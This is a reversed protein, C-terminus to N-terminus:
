AAKRGLEEALRSIYFARSEAPLHAFSNAVRAVDKRGKEYAALDRNGYVDRGTAYGGDLDRFFVNVAVSLDSTPKATHLWLSPIFLADGPGVIAEHSHSNPIGGAADLASFVDLSSSSAGPGFSLNTVDSPPFLVMRKTGVIQFYVNAMVDYHLWMNAKGSIRLVSSFLKQRAFELEAPIAFDNALQPYDEALIAPKESPSENSLSRLYMSAGTKAEHIFDGFDKTVYQFNKANFDLADTSAQHVIVKRREGVSSALYEPTWLSVCAGMDLGEIVVPKGASIIDDLSLQAGLRVRLIPKPAAVLPRQIGPVPRHSALSPPLEVTTSHKWGPLQASQSVNLSLTYVHKTWFTGMSFCTAGGGLIVIKDEVKLVSSGVILPREPIQDPYPLCSSITCGESSVSVLVIDHGQLILGAQSVGGLVLLQDGCSLVSAGFRPLLTSSSGPTQCAAFTIIPEHRNNIAVEWSFTQQSITGDRLMGGSLIGRFHSPSGPAAGTCHLVAGYTPPPRQGQVLCQTWGRLPDLLLYEGYVTSANTKGGALLGFSSQGLRSVCHRYLPVPLDEVREWLASGKGLRWCDALAGSPSTRGGTLFMGFGGLDTITHCMRGPPSNTPSPLKCEHLDGRVFMDASVSRGNTGLGLFNIPSEQGLMDRLTYGAAFRRLGKPGKVQSWSLNLTKKLVEKDCGASNPSSPLSSSWTAGNETNTSALILIYHSAFLSFEEWEDFPELADLDVRQQASFFHESKWADWLSWTQVDPWGRSRFRSRQSEASPYVAASKIPTKLKNFHSLMTRAFPHDPGDPLIQEMLCFEATSGVRSAWGIVADALNTEMYTISVEAIFLISCESLDCISRLAKELSALDGLDCGLQVYQDSRLTCPLEMAEELNTLMSALEKTQRVVASKRLILDPFDVDVFVVNECQKPCRTLCQWPLVDSGCGLNVVLKKTQQSPHGSLFNRVTTDVLKLRLLYGRNILPSRRQFKRVFYRFFHPENPYYLKEVSRKSVISSGNTEMVLNDQLQKKPRNSKASM